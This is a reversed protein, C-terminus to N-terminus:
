EDLVQETRRVMRWNLVVTPETEYHWSAPTIRDDMYGDTVRAVRVSRFDKLVEARKDPDTTFYGLSMEDLWTDETLPLSVGKDEDSWGAPYLGQLVVWERYRAAGPTVQARACGACPAAPYCWESDDLCWARVEGTTRHDGCSRSPLGRFQAM